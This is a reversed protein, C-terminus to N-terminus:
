GDKGANDKRATGKLIAKWDEHSSGADKGTLEKLSFLLAERQEHPAPKPNEKQWKQFQLQEQKSLPRTRVLYDLRQNAPWKGPVAIPQVVSFDQRLFTTGARVFLGTTEAYYLPPPDEGPVPVRGRILDEKSLSPAHCLMCNCLHNVCVLERVALVEKGQEKVPFPLTPNPQDLLDILTPVTDKDKLAVLAEAAHDAVAPWPYVFGNILTQRYDNKPREALAMVAKERVKPSLDYLARQALAISAEKGEIHSLMEVLLLRMPTNEPQLMQMLTPIAGPQRWESPKIEAANFGLLARQGPLHGKFLLDRLRDPDPRIDGQPTSARMCTRLNNSLVHLREAAEKGLQCDAGMRWPFYFLDPRKQTKAMQALFRIGYDPPLADPSHRAKEAELLPAYLTATAPQALGADPVALLQKRLDEDTTEKRRKFVVEEQGAGDLAPDLTPPKPVEVQVPEKARPDEKPIPDEKPTPEKPPSEKTGGPPASERPKEKRPSDEKAPKPHGESFPPKGEKKPPPAKEEDAPAKADDAPAKERTSTESSAQSKEAMLKAVERSLEDRLAAQGDDKKWDLRLSLYFGSAGGALYAVFLFVGWLVLRGLLSRKRPAPPPVPHRKVVAPKSSQARVPQRPGSKGASGVIAPRAPPRAKGGKDPLSGGVWDPLPAAPKEKTIPAAPPQPAPVTLPKRCKPCFTERGACDEPASVPNGCSSCSFRIM